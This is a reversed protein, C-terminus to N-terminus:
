QDILIKGRMPRVYEIHLSGDILSSYDAKDFTVMLHNTASVISIWGKLPSPLGPFDACSIRWALQSDVEREGNALM